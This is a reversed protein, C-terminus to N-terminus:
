TSRPRAKGTTYAAGTDPHNGGGVLFDIYDSTITFTPSTITGM